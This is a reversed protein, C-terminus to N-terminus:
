VTFQNLSEEIQKQLTDGGASLTPAPNFNKYSYVVLNMAM